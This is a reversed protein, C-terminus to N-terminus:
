HRRRPIITILQNATAPCVHGRRQLDHRLTCLCSCLTAPIPIGAAPTNLVDAPWALQHRCCDRNARFAWQKAGVRADGSLPGRLVYLPLTSDLFGNTTRHASPCGDPESRNKRHPVFVHGTQHKSGDVNAPNQQWKNGTDWRTCSEILFSTEVDWLGLTQSWRLPM